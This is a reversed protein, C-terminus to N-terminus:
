ADWQRCMVRNAILLVIEGFHLLRKAVNLSFYNYLLTEVENGKKTLTPSEM